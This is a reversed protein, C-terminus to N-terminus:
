SSGKRKRRPRSTPQHNLFSRAMMLVWILGQVYDSSNDSGWLCMQEIPCSGRKHPQERTHGEHDCDFQTWADSRSKVGRIGLYLKIEHGEMNHDDLVNGMSIIVMKDSTDLYWRLFIGNREAERGITLAPDDGIDEEYTDASDVDVGAFRLLTEIVELKKGLIKQAQAKKTM